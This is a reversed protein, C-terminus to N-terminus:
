LSIFALAITLPITQKFHYGKREQQLQKACEASSETQNLEMVLTVCHSHQISRYPRLWKGCCHTFKRVKLNCNINYHVHMYVYM